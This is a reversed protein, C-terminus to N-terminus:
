PRYIEKLKGWSTTISKCPNPFCTTNDGRYSGGLMECQTRDVIQCEDGVCCAGNAPATSCPNYGEEGFGMVGFDWIPDAVPSVDRCDVFGTDDRGATAPDEDLPISVPAYVYSAFWYVEVITTRRGTQYLVGIGENPGPWGSTPMLLFGDNCAGSDLFAMKRSDYDGFGFDVLGLNIPGPSNHFSALVYWIQAQEPMVQGETIADECDRLGSLGEYMASGGGASYELTPNLHTLLVGYEHPGASATCAAALLCAADLVAHKLRCRM